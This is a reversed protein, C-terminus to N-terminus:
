TLSEGPDFDLRYMSLGSKQRDYNTVVFRAARLDSVRARMNLCIEGLEANSAPGERLRALVKRTQDSLRKKDCKRVAPDRPLVQQPREPNFLGLQTLM